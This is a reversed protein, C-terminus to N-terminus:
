WVIKTSKNESQIIYTGNPLPSAHRARVVVDNSTAIGQYVLTGSITYIRYTEGGTLGGIHLIGDAVWARLPTHCVDMLDRINTQHTIECDYEGCTECLIHEKKCDWEDCVDCKEHEIECDWEECIDCWVHDKDCDWEECIDCLVHDVDCGWEECIDCQDSLLYTTVDFGESIESVRTNATARQRQQFTYSTGAALGTFVNDQQWARTGRRYEFGEIATLTVSTATKSELTPANPVPPTAVGISFSTSAEGKFDGTGKVIVRGFGANINDIYSLTYDTEVVLIEEGLKVTVDTPEIPNGTYTYTGNVTIAVAGTIDVRLDPTYNIHSQLTRDYATISDGAQLGSWTVQTQGNAPYIVQVLNGGRHVEYCLLEDATANVINITTGSRTVSVGPKTFASSQPQRNKSPRAYYTKREDKPLLHVGAKTKVDDSVNLHYYAFHPTLDRGVANSLSLILNEWKQPATTQDHSNIRTYRSPNLRIDRYARGLAAYDYALMIQYVSIAMMRQENNSNANIPNPRNTHYNAMSSEYSDFSTNPRGLIYEAYEQFVINLVERAGWNASGDTNKGNTLMVDLMEWSHGVEHSIMYGTVGDPYNVSFGAGGISTLSGANYVTLGDGAYGMANLGSVTTAVIKGGRPSDGTGLPAKMDFGALTTNFEWFIKEYAEMVNYISYGGSHTLALGSKLGTNSTTIVANNSVAVAIDNGSHNDVQNKFAAPDTEGHIYLPHRVGGGTITVVPAQPQQDPLFGNYFFIAAPGHHTSPLTITQTGATLQQQYVWSYWQGSCEYSQFFIRPLNTTSGANVNVTISEGPKISYGTADLSMITSAMRTRASETGMNGRQSLTYTKSNVQAQTLNSNQAKTQPTISILIATLLTPLIHKM